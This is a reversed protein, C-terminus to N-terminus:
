TLRARKRINSFKEYEIVYSNKTVEYVTKLQNVEDDHGWGTTHLKGSNWVVSFRGRKSEKSLDGVPKKYVDHWENNIQIASCKMAFKLTDRNVKQLLAGGMGFAINDVSFGAKEMNNLCERISELDVGDGQIIRVHNLIKYGKSNITSGYSKDLSKAIEVPVTRPDGSDPRIVVIAGSDIVDQKLTKGWLNDVANYIDYSDSVIAVLSGPKAFNKLMNRYADEENDRGWSTITSHEAAPISFGAMPEKYYIRAGVLGMVTDSGKFNVLHALGGLMASEMSSVGRSGFDHLKFDIGSPDDSTKDFFEKIIKKAERSITAVTTPYWIARLLATEVYSTLWFCKPDTNVVTLMVTGPSVVSGEPLARIELPLDGNYEKLIYDWGERNFPVGHEKFFPEASDIMEKTISTTLKEKLYPTIGLFVIEEFPGGRSEIYSYVKQTGPPYQLFHSCKYSDVDLIINIIM